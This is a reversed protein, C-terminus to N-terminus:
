QDERWIQVYKGGISREELGEMHARLFHYPPSQGFDYLCLLRRAPDNSRRPGSAPRVIHQQVQGHRPCHPGPRGPESHGLDRVPLALAAKQQGHFVLSLALAQPRSGLSRFAAQANVRDNPFGLGLDLLESKHALPRFLNQAIRGPLPKGLRIEPDLM